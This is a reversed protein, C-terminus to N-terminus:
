APTVLFFTVGYCILVSKLLRDRFAYLVGEKLEALVSSATGSQRVKEVRIFSLVLVALSATVVDVMFTWVIGLSGLIVGGAAPALPMLISNLTMNVGQVRTLRDVPVLQPYLALVAPAQIGQTG